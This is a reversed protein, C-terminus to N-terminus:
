FRGFHALSICFHMEIRGFVDFIEPVAGFLQVKAPSDDKFPANASFSICKQM